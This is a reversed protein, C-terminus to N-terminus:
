TIVASLDDSVLLAWQADRRLNRIYSALGDLISQLNCTGSSCSFCAALSKDVTAESCVRQHITEAGHRGVVAMMIQELCAVRREVQRRYDSSQFIPEIARIARKDGTLLLASSRRILVALLQSEGGDLEVGLSQATQEFEAALSLEDDDPEILAVKGLLYSLRSAAGERDSIYKRNAIAKGLVYRVMGLVHITSAKGSVCGLVEDVVGYCCTKLIIDNDMLVSDAM